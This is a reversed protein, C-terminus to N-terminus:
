TVHRKGGVEFVDWPDSDPQVERRAVAAGLAALSFPKPLVEVDALDAYALEARVWAVAHGTVLVAPVGYMSRAAVALDVGTTSDGLDFDILM